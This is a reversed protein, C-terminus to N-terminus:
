QLFGSFNAGKLISTNGHIKVILAPLFVNRNIENPLILRRRKILNYHFHSFHFSLQSMLKFKSKLSFISVLNVIKIKNKHKLFKKPM